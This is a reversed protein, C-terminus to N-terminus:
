TRREPVDSVVLASPIAARRDLTASARRLVPAPTSGLRTVLALAEVEPLAILTQGDACSLPPGDLVVVDAIAQLDELVAQLARGALLESHHPGPRGATLVTLGDLERLPAALMSEVPAGQLAEALGEATGALGLRRGVSGRSPDTEVVTVRRGGRAIACALGIAVSSRGEGSVASTVAVVRRSGSRGVGLAEALLGFPALTQPERPDVWSQRRGRRPLVAVAPLGLIREVEEIRKVRRDRVDLVLAIALGVALGLMVGLMADRKPRPSVPAGPPAARSAVTVDTLGVANLAVVRHLTESLQRRAATDGPPLAALDARLRRESAQLPARYAEARLQVYQDVVANAIQAARAPDPDTATVTIVDSEPEAYADIQGLLEAPTQPLRLAAVVREAVAESRVLLLATALRRQPDGAAGSGILGEVSADSARVVMSAGASFEKEKTRALGFNLVGGVLACLAVVWWREGLVRLAYTLSSTEAASEPAFPRPEVHRDSM